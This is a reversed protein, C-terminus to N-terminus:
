MLVFFGNFDSVQLPVGGCTLGIEMTTEFMLFIKLLLEYIDDVVESTYIYLILSSFTLIM